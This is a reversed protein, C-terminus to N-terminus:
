FLHFYKNNYVVRLPIWTFLSFGISALFYHDLTLANLLFNTDFVEVLWTNDELATYQLWPHSSWLLFRGGGEGWECLARRHYKCTNWVLRINICIGWIYKFRDPFKLKAGILMVNQNPSQKVSTLSLSKKVICFWAALFFIAMGLM